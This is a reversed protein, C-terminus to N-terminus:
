GRGMFRPAVFGQSTNKKAFPRETQMTAARNDYAIEVTIEDRHETMWTRHLTEAATCARGAQKVWGRQEREIAFPWPNKGWKRKNCESHAPLLNELVHHGKNAMPWIHEIQWDHRMMIPDLCIWCRDGTLEFMRARSVVIPHVKM